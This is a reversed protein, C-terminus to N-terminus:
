DDNDLGKLQVQQDIWAVAAEVLAQFGVQTHVVTYTDIDKHLFKGPAFEKEVRYSDNEAMFRVSTNEPMEFDFVVTM